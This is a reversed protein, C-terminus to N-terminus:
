KERVVGYLRGNQVKFLAGYGEKTTSEVGQPM